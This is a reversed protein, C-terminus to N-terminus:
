ESQGGWRKTVIDIATDMPVKLTREGALEGDIDTWAEWHPEQELQTRREERMLEAAQSRVTVGKDGTEYSLALYFMGISALLFAVLLVCSAIGIIWTGGGNPDETDGPLPGHQTSHESM